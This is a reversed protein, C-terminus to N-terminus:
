RKKRQRVANIAQDVDSQLARQPIGANRARSKKARERVRAILATRELLSISRPPMVECVVNGDLELELGEASVPLNRFFQKVATTAKDLNVRKM